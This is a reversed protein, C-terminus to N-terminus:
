KTQAVFVGDWDQPPPNVRFEAIRQAYVNALEEIGFPRLLPRCEDLLRSAGSWDQKHYCAQMSQWLKELTAFEHTDAVDRRGVITFIIEVGAKGKVLITDVQLMAFEDAVAQMTKSGILLSVGHLATQGELRSALNVSDGMVTYQFRLDSGMNGVVCRGTNIGIGVRIPIFRSGSESAERERERNLLDVQELMELAANCAHSEHRADDLPANWFAMIADGMYKDITGKSELIKNTLPTLFRNMLSTLGQPNDGFSEAIATFGRVDSFLVTMAREEGGLVLKQPSSALQEVLNPSLYQSFASRIRRRDAQERFYGILMLSVYVVLVTIAPFSPDVLIQYNSYLLWSGAAIAALGLFALLSLAVAGVIPAVLALMAGVLAAILIEVAIAYSPTKLLSGSLAAEVLQAHIEVGPMAAHVPTTKIDLLGIASTGILVLKDALQQSSVAGELVDKASVYRASDHPSFHVWIRGNQDTPLQLGAVSVQQVGAQDARVLVAGAGTAVRLLDIALAPVVEGDASMILPVRRVMGDRETAITFLGRGAAARELQPLNRLLKPFSYLFPGPDPGLIAIGTQPSRASPDSRITRTGSQGLVVKRGTMAKALVDDNSPMKQLQARTADNLDHFYRMAEEPSTRDAESFVVDFAVARAKGEFLRDLLRAVLTRPWPWQGYAHLSAEDIDVILVPRDSDVRPKITQFLDFTRLRLEELATPEAIRISILAALLVLGFTRRSLIARSLFTFPSTM